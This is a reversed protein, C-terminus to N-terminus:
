IQVNLIHAMSRPILPQQEEGEWPRGPCVLSRWLPTAFHSSVKPCSCSRRPNTSSAWLKLLGHTAATKSPATWFSPLSSSTRSRCPIAVSAGINGPFLSLTCSPPLLLLVQLHLLPLSLPISCSPIMRALDCSRSPFKVNRAPLPHLLKLEALPHSLPPIPTYHVLLSHPLHETAKYGLPLRDM